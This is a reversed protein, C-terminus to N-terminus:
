AGMFAVVASRAVRILDAIVEAGIRENVLDVKIGALQEDTLVPVMPGLGAVSTDVEDMASGPGASALANSAEIFEVAKEAVAKLKADM